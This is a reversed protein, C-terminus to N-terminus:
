KLGLYGEVAVIIAAVTGIGAGLTGLRWWVADAAMRAEDKQPLWRGQNANM